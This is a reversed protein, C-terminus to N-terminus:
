KGTEAAGATEERESVPWSVGTVLDTGPTHPVRMARRKATAARFGMEGTYVMKLSKSQLHYRLCNCAALMIEPGRHRGADLWQRFAYAPDGRKIMEGTIVKATFDLTAAENIPVIWTAAARLGAVVSNKNIHPCDDIAKMAAEHHGLTAMTEAVTVTVNSSIMNFEMRHLLGLAAVVRSHLGTLTAVSRIRGCDIPDHVSGEPNHAVFLWAGKKAMVIASLRHQGDYLGKKNFAIPQHTRVWKDAIIDNAFSTVKAWNVARNDEDNTALWREAMEPTVFVFEATFGEEAGAVPVEVKRKSM